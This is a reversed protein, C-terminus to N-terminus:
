FVRSLFKRYMMHSYKIILSHFYSNQAKTRGLPLKEIEVLHTGDKLTEFATRVQDKNLINGHDIIVEFQM